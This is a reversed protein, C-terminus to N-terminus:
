GPLKEALIDVPWIDPHEALLEEARGLLAAAVPGNLHAQRGAEDNFSDFIGFTQADIRYAFWTITGNEQAVLSQASALFAGLEREKGPKAKLTVSLAVATMKM